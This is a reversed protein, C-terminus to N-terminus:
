GRLEVEVLGEGPIFEYKVGKSVFYLNLDRFFKHAYLCSLVFNKHKSHENEYNVIANFLLTKTRDSEWGIIKDCMEEAFRIAGYASFFGIAFALAYNNM